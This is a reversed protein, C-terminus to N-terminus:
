KNNTIYNMIDGLTKLQKFEVNEIQIEFEEDMMAIVSLYALSDWEELERFITETSLVDTTEIELAEAFKEIFIKTDM